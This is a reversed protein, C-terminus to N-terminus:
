VSPKAAVVQPPPTADVNTGLSFLVFANENFSGGGGIQYAFGAHLYNAFSGNLSLLPKQGEATGRLAFNGSLGHQYWRDTSFTVGYGLGPAFSTQVTGDKLSIALVNVSVTPGFCTTKNALCGGFTQAHARGPALLAVVIAIVLTTLLIRVTAFGKDLRAKAEETAPITGGTVAGDKVARGFAGILVAAIHWIAKYKGNPGSPVADFALAVEILATGMYGILSSRWSAGFVMYAVASLQKAFDM